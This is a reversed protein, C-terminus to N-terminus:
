HLNTQDKNKPGTITRLPQNIVVFLGASQSIAGGARVQSQSCGSKDSVFLALHHCDLLCCSSKGQRWGAVGNPIHGGQKRHRLEFCHHNAAMKTGGNEGTETLKTLYTKQNQNVKIKKPLLTKKRLYLVDKTQKTLRPGGQQSVKQENM